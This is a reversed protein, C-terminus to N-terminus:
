IEMVKERLFEAQERGRAPYNYLDIYLQINSVTTIEQICQTDFFVGMDWPKVMYINGGFEVPTLELEDIITKGQNTYIYFDTSRVFPAILSAASGMTLAYQEGNIGGLREYIEDINDMPCYYGSIEQKKFDYNKAWKDLLNGPKVLKISGWGREIYGEDALRKILMSVFGTSAGACSSLESNKWEKEPSNLLKRIVWTSKKSFLSRITKHDRYKNEYGSKDILVNEFSLHANGSFDIFGIGSDIIIEKVNESIYPAMYVPYGNLNESVKLLDFIKSKIISPEGSHGISVILETQKNGHIVEIIM